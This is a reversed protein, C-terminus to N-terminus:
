VYLNSYNYDTHDFAYRVGVRTACEELGLLMAGLGLPATRLGLLV